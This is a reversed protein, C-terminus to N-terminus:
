TIDHAHRDGWAGPVLHAVLCPRKTHIQYSM